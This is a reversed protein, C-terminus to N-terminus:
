NKKELIQHITQEIILVRAQRKKILIQIHEQRRPENEKKFKKISEDYSAIDFQKLLGLVQIGRSINVDFIEWFNESSYLELEHDYESILTLPMEIKNKLEKQMVNFFMRILTHKTESPYLVSINVGLIKSSSTNKILTLIRNKTVVLDPELVPHHMHCLRSSHIWNQLQTQLAEKDSGAVKQLLYNISNHENRCMSKTTVFVGNNILDIGQDEVFLLRIVNFMKKIPEGRLVTFEDEGAVFVFRVSAAEILIQKIFAANVLNRESGDIDNFGPLDFFFLNNDIAISKPYLTQSDGTAGIPMATQDNQNALTYGQGYENVYLKKGSLLNVLTSKGAGTNGLFVVIDRDRSSHLLHSHKTFEKQIRKVVVSSELHDFASQVGQTKPTWERIMMKLAFNPILNINDLPLGTRPSRGGPYRFWEQIAAKEYSYGDAAVVPDQMVSRTIPCIMEHPRQIDFDEAGIVSDCLLIGAALRYPLLVKKKFSLFSNMAQEENQKV